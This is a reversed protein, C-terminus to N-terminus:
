YPDTSVASTPDISAATSGLAGSPGGKLTTFESM